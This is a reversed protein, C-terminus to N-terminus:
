WHLYMINIRWWVGSSSETLSNIIEDETSIFAYVVSIKEQRENNIDCIIINYKNTQKNKLLLLRNWIKRESFFLSFFPYNRMTLERRGILPSPFPVPNKLIPLLYRSDTKHFTKLSKVKNQYILLFSNNWTIKPKILM